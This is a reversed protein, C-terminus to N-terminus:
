RYAEQAPIGWKKPKGFVYKRPKNRNIAQKRWWEFETDEEVVKKKTKPYQLLQVLGQLADPLDDHKGSPFRSLQYELEGMGKKHYISHQAYRPDLRTVVRQIKDLDWALDKFM